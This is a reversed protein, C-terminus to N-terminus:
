GIIRVVGDAGSGGAGGTRIVGGSAGGAGGGAGGGSGYSVGNQGVEGNTGAGGRGGYGGSGYISAGGQSGKHGISTNVAGVGGNGGYGGGGGLFVIDCGTVSGGSNGAVLSTVGDSVSVSSAGFTATWTDGENIFIRKKGSSGAAGGLTGRTAVTTTSTGNGGSGGNEGAGTVWIDYYKSIPATWSTTGGNELLFDIGISSNIKETAQSIEVESDNDPDIYYKLVRNGSDYFGGKAPDYTGRNASSAFASGTFVIYNHANDTAQLTYDATDVTYINGDKEILSGVKITFTWPSTTHNVTIDTKDDGVRNYDVNEALNTLNQSPLYSNLQTIAM